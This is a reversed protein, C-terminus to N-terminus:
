TEPFLTQRNGCNCCQKHGDDTKKCYCHDCGKSEKSKARWAIGEGHPCGVQHFQGFHCNWVKTDPIDRTPDTKMADQIHEACPVKLIGNERYCKCENM